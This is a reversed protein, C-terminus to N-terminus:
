KNVTTFVFSGVAVSVALNLSDVDASQPIFISTGYSAFEPPLGRAENGFVLSYVRSAPCEAISLTKKGDLMFPFIDRGSGYQKMYDEFSPFLSFDIHFLAGMSARIVKPNFIDAAPEIVALNKIGFGLITRLITGLNGMDSPNVLVVHPSGSDLTASYKNFVGAAYCIEKSSIRELTKNNITFPINKEKCLAILKEKDNFGDGIIVERANESSFKLMEFAPFPGLAYSYPDDKKYKKYSNAM